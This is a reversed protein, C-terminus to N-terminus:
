GVNVEGLESEHNEFQVVSSRPLEFESDLGHELVFQMGLIM